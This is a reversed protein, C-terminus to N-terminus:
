RGGSTITLFRADAGEGGHEDPMDDSSRRARIHRDLRHIARGRAASACLDRPHARRHAETLSSSKCPRPGLVPRLLRSCVHGLRARPSHLSCPSRQRGGEVAQTAAPASRSRRTPCELRPASGNWGAATRAGISRGPVGPAGAWVVARPCVRRCVSPPGGCRRSSECARVVSQQQSPSLIHLSGSFARSANATLCAGCCADIVREHLM